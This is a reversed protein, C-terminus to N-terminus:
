WEVLGQLEKEKCAKEQLEFPRTINELLNVGGV